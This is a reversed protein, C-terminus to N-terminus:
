VVKIIGREIQRLRRACERKMTPNHFTTTNYSNTHTYPQSNKSKRKQNWIANKMSNVEADILFQSNGSLLMVAAMRAAFYSRRITAM